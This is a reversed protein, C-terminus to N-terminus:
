VRSGSGAASGHGSGSTSMRRQGVAWALLDDRRYLVRRGLKCFAPGRGEGRWRELTKVPANGRATRAGAFLFAAAEATTLFPSETM